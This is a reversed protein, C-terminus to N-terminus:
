DNKVRNHEIISNKFIKQTFQKVEDNLKDFNPATPDIKSSIKGVETLM